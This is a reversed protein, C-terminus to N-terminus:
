SDADASEWQVGIGTEHPFSIRGDADYLLPNGVNRALLLPGDIDAYDAVPLLHALAAAGVNSESMSGLMIKKDQSQLYRVIEMAPTIGGCKSLKINCGDYFAIKEKISKLGTFVEDGIVPIKCVTRYYGLSDMDDRDFPQEILDIREPDLLPLLETFQERTWGENADIRITAKTASLVTELLAIDADGNLKLKYIPYPHAEIKALLSDRDGIGLTYDSCPVRDSWKLGLTEYLPQGQLKSWMDWSACDLASILFHQEPILHHLYHWFREPGNYAYKSIMEKQENLIAEMQAVTNDYYLIETAEGIGYQAGMGLFVILTPQESKLGKATQFPYQFPLQFKKFDFRLM